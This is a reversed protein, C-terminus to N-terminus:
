KGGKKKGKDFYDDWKDPNKYAFKVYNNLQHIYRKTLRYIAIPKKFISKCVYKGKEDNCNLLEIENDDGIDVKFDKSSANKLEEPAVFKIGSRSIDDSLVNYKHHKDDELIINDSIKVRQYERKEPKESVVKIAYYMIILNLTNWFLNAVVALVSYPESYLIDYVGQMEAAVLILFIIIMPLKYRSKTKSKKTDKKTVTFKIKSLKEPLLLTQLIGGITFISTVLDYVDALIVNNIRIRAAFIFAFKLSFYCVQFAFIQYFLILIPSIDFFLFFIPATLFILRAIPTFFYLVSSLYFFLQVPKLKLYYKWNALNTVIQVNGKAWRCRQKIYQEFSSAAIGIAIPRNYYYVKYGKSHLKLGLLSDETITNEPFNGVEELSKRRILINTGGCFVSDYFGLSPEIVRYFMDQENSLFTPMELNKQFADPNCFHQPTQILAIKEDIFNYVTEKLFTSSPVHDADFIVIFESDTQSLANNINGAKFGKNTARKIYNCDLMEALEKVEERRGDDLVYVKFNPYGINRCASITTSLMDVSEDLTCIFIDVSPAFNKFTILEGNKFVDKSYDQQLKNTPVVKELGSSKLLIITFNTFVILTLIEAGCLAYSWFTTFPSTLLNLTYMWRWSVYTVGLILVISSFIFIFVSYYKKKNM